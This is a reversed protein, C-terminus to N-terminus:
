LLADGQADADEEVTGAVVEEVGGGAGGAPRFLLPKTLVLRAADCPMALLEHQIGIAAIGPRLRIDRPQIPQILAIHISLEIFAFDSGTDRDIDFTNPGLSALWVIQKGHPRAHSFAAHQAANM